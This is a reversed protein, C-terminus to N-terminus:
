DIFTFLNRGLKEWSFNGILGDRTSLLRKRLAVKKLLDSIEEIGLELNLVQGFDEQLVEQVFGVDSSLVPTGSALAQLVPIPGGELFSLNCLASANRYLDGNSTTRNEWYSINGHLKEVDAFISKWAKSEFVFELDKNALVLERVKYPNKRPKCDGAILIYEGRIMTESPRYIGKDVAGYIKSVKDRPFGMSLLISETNSNMVLFKVQDNEHCYDILHGIEEQSNFHTILINHQKIDQLSEMEKLLFLSSQHISLIPKPSLRNISKKKRALVNKKRSSFLYVTKPVFNLADSSERWFADLIWERFRHQSIVVADERVTM